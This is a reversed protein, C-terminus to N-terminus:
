KNQLQEAQNIFQELNKTNINDPYTKKLGDLVNKYVDLDTKFDILPSNEMNRYLAVLTTLSGKNTNIYNILFSRQNDRLMKYKAAIEQRVTDYSDADAMNLQDYMAKLAVRTMIQKDSLLKLKSSEESGKVNYTSSLSTYDAAINIKEGKKPFIMIYDSPGQLLFISEYDLREDVSFSGNKNAKITDLAKVGQSQMEMLYLTCEDCNELKGSLRYTDTNNSCAAFLCLTAAICLIKITKM